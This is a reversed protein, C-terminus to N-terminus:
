NKGLGKQLQALMRDDNSALLDGSGNRIAISTDADALLNITEVDYNAGGVAGFMIIVAWEAM